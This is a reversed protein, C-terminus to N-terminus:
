PKSLEEEVVALVEPSQGTLTLAYVPHAPIPGATKLYYTRDGIGVFKMFKFRSPIRVFPVGEIQWKAYPVASYSVGVKVSDGNIQVYNGTGSRQSISKLLSGSNDKLGTAYYNTALAPLIVRDVVANLIPEM